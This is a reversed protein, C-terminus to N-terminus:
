TFDFWCLEDSTPIYRLAFIGTCNTIIDGPEIIIKSPLIGSGNGYFEIDSWLFDTPFINGVTITNGDDLVYFSIAPGFESAGYTTDTPMYHLQITGFCSTIEDGAEIYEKDPFICTGDGINRMDSWRVNAPQISVINLSHGPTGYLFTIVPVLPTFEFVCLVTNSPIYLLQVQGYCNTIKDGPNVYQNNPLACSGTGVKTIDSWLVDSSDVSTVTLTKATSDMVFMIEPTEPAEYRFFGCIFHSTLIGRFDYQKSIYMRSSSDKIHGIYSGTFDNSRQYFIIM